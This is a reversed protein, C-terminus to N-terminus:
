AHATVAAAGVAERVADGLGTAYLPCDVSVQLEEFAVLQVALPGQDLEPVSEPLPQLLGRVVLVVNVKWHVPGPPVDAKCDTVTVTPVAGTLPEQETVWKLQAAPDLVLLAVPEPEQVQDHAPEFPPVVADHESVIAVQVRGHPPVRALPLETM